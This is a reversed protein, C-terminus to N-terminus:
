VAEKGVSVVTLPGATALWASPRSVGGSAWPHHMDHKTHKEGFRDALVTDVPAVALWKAVTVESNDLVDGPEFPWAGSPDPVPGDPEAAERAALAAEVRDLAALAEPSFTINIDVSLRKSTM